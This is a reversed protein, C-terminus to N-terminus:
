GVLKQYPLTKNPMGRAMFMLQELTDLHRANHRGAFEGVYRDLHKKSMKHYTGYYGRKLMAWFSEMGNTHAQERVYEGSSHSVTKHNDLGVYAQSEDTYLTAEPDVHEGVFAQITDRNVAEAVQVRVEKTSRDKVGAVPTKGVTGRGANLKCREHKNNEKGGIYTEDAEIPGELLFEGEQWM